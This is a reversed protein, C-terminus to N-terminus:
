LSTSQALPIDFHFFDYSVSNSLYDLLFHGKQPERIVKFIRSNWVINNQSKNIAKEHFLKIDEKFSVSNLLSTSVVPILISMPSYLSEIDLSKDTIVNIKIQEGSLRTLLLELFRHFSSIWDNSIQDQGDQESKILYIHQGFNM